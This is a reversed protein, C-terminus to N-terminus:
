FDEDFSFDLNSKGAIAEKKTQDARKDEIEHLLRDFEAALALPTPRHLNGEHRVYRDGMTFRLWNWHEVLDALFERLKAPSGYGSNTLKMRIETLNQWTYQSTWDWDPLSATVWVNRLEGAFSEVEPDIKMWKAAKLNGGAEQTKVSSPVNKGQTKTPIFSTNEATKSTTNSQSSTANESTHFASMAESPGVSKWRKSTPSRAERRAKSLDISSALEILKLSRASMTLWTVKVITGPKPRYSISWFGERALLKLHENATRPTIPLEAAIERGTKYIAPKGDIEHTAHQSWFLCYALTHAANGRVLGRVCHRLQPETARTM